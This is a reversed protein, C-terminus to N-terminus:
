RLPQSAWGPVGHRSVFTLTALALALGLGSSPEPVSNPDGWGAFAVEALGVWQEDGRNRQIRLEIWRVYEAVPLFVCEGFANYRQAPQVGVRDFQDLAGNVTGVETRSADRMLIDFEFLGQDELEGPLQWVWLENILYEGGLDLEISVPYENGIPYQWITGPQLGHYALLPHEHTLGTGDYLSAPADSTQDGHRIIASKARIVQYPSLEGFAIPTAFVNGVPGTLWGIVLVVAAGLVCRGM